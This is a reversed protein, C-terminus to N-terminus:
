PGPAVEIRVTVDDGAAALDDLGTDVVGLRVLGPEPVTQGIDDYVVAVQSGPSWYALQGVITRYTPAAGTVDLRRAHRPLPGASVQGMRDSMRVTLPLQGALQRAVPTDDLTATAVQDDFRLVLRTSGAPLPRPAPAAAPSTVTVPGALFTDSLAGGAVVTALTALALAAGAVRRLWLRLNSPAAM